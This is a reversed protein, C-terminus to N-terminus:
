LEEELRYVKTEYPALVVTGKVIEKTDMDTVSRNLGIEQSTKAFNM